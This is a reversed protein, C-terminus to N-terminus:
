GKEEERSTFYKRVADLFSKRKPHPAGEETAAYQRLIEKQRASLKTPVEVTFVVIEDGRRRSRLVPMGMEALRMVDGPQVGGKVTVKKAGHLTPVEVETGLAAQTFTLPVQVLVDGGRREFLPHERVTIDVYLDGRHRGGEGPEGEGSLRLRMGDEVGVPIEVAIERREPSMGTGDCRPCPDAIVEGRGRCTPCSTTIAFFGQSRSVQGRGGCTRCRTAHTGKRAGTADCEACSERRRIEITRRLGKAAEELDIAVTCRLSAGKRTRGASAPGFLDGFLGGGFIDGFASFIDDFSTFEHVRGRVGEHGFRDYRARTEQNSLVEYAEAAEKFKREADPDKKNRDPHYQFALKRFARKVEDADADRSVGLVEYYDRETTM